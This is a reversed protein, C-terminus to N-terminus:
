KQVYKSIISAFRQVNRIDTTFIFIFESQCECMCPIKKIKEVLMPFYSPNQLDKKLLLATYSM